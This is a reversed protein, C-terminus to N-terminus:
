VQISQGSLTHYTLLARVEYFHKTIHKGPPGYKEFATIFMSLVRITHLALSDFLEKSIKKGDSTADLLAVTSIIEALDKLGDLKSVAELQKSVSLNLRSVIAVSESGIKKSEGLLEDATKMGQLAKQVVASIGEEAQKETREM